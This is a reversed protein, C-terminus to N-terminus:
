PVQEGASILHDFLLARRQMQERRSKARLPPYFFDGKRRKRPTLPCRVTDDTKSSLGGNLLVWFAVIGRGGLSINPHLVVAASRSRPTSQPLRYLRGSPGCVSMCESSWLPPTVRGESGFTNRRQRGSGRPARTPRDPATRHPRPVRAHNCCGLSATSPANGGDRPCRRVAGPPTHNCTVEPLAS